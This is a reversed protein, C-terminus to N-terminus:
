WLNLTKFFLLDVNAHSVVNVFIFYVFITRKCLICFPHRMGESGSSDNGIQKFHFNRAANQKKKQVPDLPIEAVANCLRGNNLGVSLQFKEM